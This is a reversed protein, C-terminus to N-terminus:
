NKQDRNNKGEVFDLSDRVEALGIYQMCRVGQTCDKCTLIHEVIRKNIADYILPIYRMDVMGRMLM